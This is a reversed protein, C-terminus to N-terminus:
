SQINKGFHKPPHLSEYIFPSFLHGYLHNVPITPINLLISLSEAVARGVHVCGPLGPESTYAIYDINNKFHRKLDHLLPVFNKLHERAALEPVVGGYESHLSIQSAVEEFIIGHLHDFIAVASEDCSSEIGIIM